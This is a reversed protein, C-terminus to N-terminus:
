YNKGTSLASSQTHYDCVCCLGLIPGAIDILYPQENEMQYSKLLRDFKLNMKPQEMSVQIM